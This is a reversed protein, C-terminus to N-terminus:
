EGRIVSDLKVIGNIHKVEDVCKIHLRRLDEDDLECLPAMMHSIKAIEVAMKFDMRALRDESMKVIARLTQTLVKAMFNMKEEAVLYGAYFTIDEEIFDSRSRANALELYRDAKEVTEPYITIGIRIKNDNKIAM